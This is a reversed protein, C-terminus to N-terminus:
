RNLGISLVYSRTQPNNFYDIGQNAVEAGGLNTEPDIGTYDTWTKLNRGAIRLEVSTFGLRRVFPQDATYSLSLERLKVFSGDEIFQTAPGTFGGGIGINFWTNEDITVAEGSGPGAVPGPFWNASGFTRQQRRIETDKHTGFNYLAGKTGNWIDGGEKIDVLGSVQWRGLFRLSTRVSGTWDPNPDAIVRDTFDYLPFGDDAIYLAGDPAGQCHGPTEDIDVGDVNLGRGCRVFDEGRIVTVPYGKTVSGYAGTFSGASKDVFEAGLLDLVEGKNKAWQAGIEWEFRETLLPRVNLSVEWGKNSIRAANKLQYAYGSSPSLPATLIVDESKSDYYTVALDARQDFLGLDIGAEFEKTREPKISTNGLTDSSFLAGQGLQTANLFDGWGGGFFGGAILATITSYAEPEKGSEGYSARVKGFSLIGTQETNGMFTTFTWALGASPFLHRRESAGFTSFGDSRLTGTLYLQDYLDAQVQGFYSETNIRRRTEDPDWTTTNQLAYPKPAILDYGYTSNLRYRRANLNQGLTVSGGIAPSYRWTATATLSHDVSYNIIDARIIQGTPLTSSTLPLAELRWDSAYDGGLAWRVSLWSLPNYEADISGYARGRELENVGEYAVFVPNDYGRSARTSALTPQPYRYSRHLQTTPDIYPFNNFEPPTRLAGLMLGSINSGKQVFDGNADVYAVNGGIRLRDFLQHSAKLRVTNRTYENNPGIIIGEHNMRGASFYFSTRENGGSATLVNDMMFGTDFLENFHDYTATGSALEPGFSTSTPRCGPGSCSAPENDFGQGFRRQLPVGQTVEDWQMTTRLSYRTQGVRGSKTTILVVGEAARAGYIAGAAAGKLIEVSEIDAPNIDSAANPVATSGTSPGTAYTTNDIPVGDVVFLPQYTGSISKGGRIRIYSSAGPDGAQQNVIVNPAKGALAQVVNPENSRQILTSDVSNVVTSLRERVSATGAGTVVVEGLRLPNPALAFDQRIVGERLLVPVSSARYGILRATLTVSQGQVRAPPVTFSYQGDERSMTGINMGDIFVSVSALPAGGETSVQGTITAGQQAQLAQGAVASLLFPLVLWCRERKM